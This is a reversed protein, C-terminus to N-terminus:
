SRTAPPPHPATLPHPQHSLWVSSVSSCQPPGKTDKSGGSVCPGGHRLSGTEAGKRQKSQGRSTTSLEARLAKAREWRVRWVTDGKGGKGGKPEGPLVSLAGAAAGRRQSIRGARGPRATVCLSLSPWVVVTGREEGQWM